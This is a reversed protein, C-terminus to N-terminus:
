CEKGVRRKGIKDFSARAEIIHFGYYMNIGQNFYFAASDSSTTIKWKYNGWGPLVPIDEGATPIYLPSCRISFQKKVYVSNSIAESHSPLFSKFAAATIFAVVTLAILFSTKM